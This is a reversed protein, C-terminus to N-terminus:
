LLESIGKSKFHLYHFGMIKEICLDIAMFIEDTFIYREIFFYTKSLFQVNLFEGNM